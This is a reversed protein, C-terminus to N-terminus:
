CTSLGKCSLCVGCPTNKHTPSYCTWTAPVNLQEAMQVIQQKSSTLLPACVSVGYASKLAISMARIFEPRCDAFRQADSFNCGIVITSVGARQALSAAYSLMVANRGAFVVDDIRPIGPLKHISFPVGYSEALRAAYELEIVHPQGYDFGVTERAGYKALCLASDIGGSLLLLSM